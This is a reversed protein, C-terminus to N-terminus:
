VLEIQRYKKRLNSVPDKFLLPDMRSKSRVLPMYGFVSAFTDVCLERQLFHFQDTWPSTKSTNVAGLMAEKYQKRQTVKIPPLKTVHSVLFNLLIDECNAAQDVTKILVSSLLNTYLFNYYSHYVTAGTLVMSYENAWKSTYSWRNKSDDWYHNRAPYGVIREPFEQWVSFAFDIEDTTLLADEDLSFVADTEIEKYPHFRSSITKINRTKVLVPVGLDAPWRHSPPPPIDCHWLVIVKQIYTSRAVNRLLKFLPSATASMVPSTAYIVATFKTRPTLGLHRYYFPFSQMVDAYEPLIATAGPVTNWLKQSRRLQSSIRDKIIELVTGIIKDVSSFYAEWIFQTQQRLKMIEPETISRVISPMQLLLREDGWIVVKTWDIVEAFPLEWGNSLLVPVCAAQLAELFRFSGLRRGRPVLCFTSNYLLKKYDYKDYESNDKECRADKNKQWGKGHRCTTLLVIDKGNHIHYLANRTDSGIGTLYRKGKFALLYNRSSPINNSSAGLYGKEGGKQPHEKAFLPFSVDFGPRFKWISMSAKALIAEGIDFGLNEVYDPWTGSYLNFIIHNRGNNWYPLAELKLQVDRIFDVSLVDQDLTDIAPIFVCAEKPDPTYFRSEQVSTLIKSYSNSMPYANQRPYVYVKFGNKCLTFNFCTEMRCRQKKHQTATARRRKPSTHYDESFGHYDSPDLFGRTGIQSITGEGGNRRVLCLYGVVLLFGCVSVWIYRKIAQM